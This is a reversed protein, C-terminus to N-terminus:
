RADGGMTSLVGRTKRPTFGRSLRDLRMFFYKPCRAGAEASAIGNVGRSRSACECCLRSTMASLGRSRAGSRFSSRRLFSAGCGVGLAKSTIVGGFSAQCFCRDAKSSSRYEM